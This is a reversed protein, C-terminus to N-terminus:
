NNVTLVLMLLLWLIETQNFNMVENRAQAPISSKVVGTIFNYKYIQCRIM